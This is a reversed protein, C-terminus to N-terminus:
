CAPSYFRLKQSDLSRLSRHQPGNPAVAVMQWNRCYGKSDDCAEIVGLVAFFALLVTISLCVIFYFLRPKIARCQKVSLAIGVCFSAISLGLIWSKIIFEVFGNPGDSRITTTLHFCLILGVLNALNYSFAFVICGFKKTSLIASMFTQPSMLRVNSNVSKRPKKRLNTSHNTPGSLNTM